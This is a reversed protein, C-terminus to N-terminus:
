NFHQFPTEGAIQGNMLDAALKGVSTEDLDKSTRFIADATLDQDERDSTGLAAILGFLQHEALELNEFVLLIAVERDRVELTAKVGADHDIAAGRVRARRATAIEILEH